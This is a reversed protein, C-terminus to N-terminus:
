RGAVEHGVDGHEVVDVPAAQEDVVGLGPQPEGGAPVDLGGLV